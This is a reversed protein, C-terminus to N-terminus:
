GKDMPRDKANANFLQSPAYNRHVYRKVKGAVANRDGKDQERDMRELNDLTEKPHIGARIGQRFHHNRVLRNGAKELNRDVYAKKIDTVDRLERGTKAVSAYRDIKDMLEKHSYNRHAKKKKSGSAKNFAAKSTKGDLRSKSKAM